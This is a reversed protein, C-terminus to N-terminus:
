REAGALEKLAAPFPSLVRKLVGRCYSIAMGYNTVPTKGAMELRRLTERRNLMCSGCHVILKYPSLDNPFDRGGSFDFELKGGARKELLRPIKVRGIDEHTAHHTCAEAMLVKDGPRLDDIANVGAALRVIDGKLRSLLISFTTCPINEPTEAVMRDVVQSDCVVLDPPNKFNELAASYQDEKVVMVQADADLADRLAQVQPLILRGKPAQIDIPVIMVVVGGSEPLLDGLMPPPTLFDEPAAALLASKLQALVRDREANGGLSNATVPANGCKEALKELFGAECKATDRQNVVPIVPINRGRALELLKEEADGWVNPTTVVLLIDARDVAQMTRKSRAEGLVSDDDTGATDLWLVPGLPILEQAKEVVDTTTGRQDSVIAVQQGSVLNLFSSKGSNVRGVLAIQLRLSKPTGIM